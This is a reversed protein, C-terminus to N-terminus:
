PVNKIWVYIILKLEIMRISAFDFVHMRTSFFTKNRLFQTWCCSVKCCDGRVGLPQLFYLLVKFHLKVKELEAGSPKMKLFHAGSEGSPSLSYV